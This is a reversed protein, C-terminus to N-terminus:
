VADFKCDSLALRAFIAFAEDSCKRVTCADSECAELILPPLSSTDVRPHSGCSVSKPEQPIAKQHHTFIQWPLFKAWKMGTMTLTVVDLSAKSPKLNLWYILIQWWVRGRKKTYKDISSCVEWVLHNRRNVYDARSSSFLTNANWVLVFYRVAMFYKSTVMAKLHATSKTRMNKRTQYFFLLTSPSMTERCSM